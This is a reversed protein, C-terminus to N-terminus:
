KPIVALNDVVLRSGLAGRYRDGEKSSSAVITMMLKSGPQATWGQKYVFPIEFKTFDSKRSGDSLVARAVVRDSTLINTGDLRETGEFLVAYISCEDTKGQVINQNEDQFSAGPSYKYYGTFRDPLGVYPEGFQTAALPQILVSSPDFNGIFLSGAYLYIGVFASLSTGKITVMEAARSGQYGDNTSRTPYALPDKAVGSIAVGENGSSWIATNNDELPYEWKDDSNQGWKEFEFSWDGVNIVQVTYTKKNESREATVTYIIQGSASFNIKAGSAPSVTAHNSVTITPAVGKDFAEKTLFLLIKRNAQDIFTNGTLEKPDLDFSVIDAEPNKPADKICSGLFLIIIFVSLFVRM